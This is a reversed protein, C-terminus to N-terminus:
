LRKNKSKMYNKISLYLDEGRVKTSIASIQGGGMGGGNIFNFLRRQQTGNLIMEGSNVRALMNDGSTSGGGIIGGFAFKPLAALAIAAQQQAIFGAAIETGVFPIYAHAAFTSAAAAASWASTEAVAAAVNTASAAATAASLAIKDGIQKTTSASEIAAEATKANKLDDSAKTWRNVTDVINLIGDVSSQLVQWIALIKEWESAGSGESMVQNLNQFASGIDQVSNAVGKFNEWAGRLGLEKQLGKIDERVETLKLKDSLSTVKDLQNNIATVMQETDQVAMSKLNDLQQKANDLQEGLIDIDSKKYDFTTDRQAEVPLVQKISNKTTGMSTSLEFLTDIYDKNGNAMGSFTAVTKKVETINNNLGENYADQSIAGAEYEKKLRDQKDYYDKAVAKLDQLSKGDQIQAYQGAMKKTFDSNRVSAFKSTALESYIETVLDQRATAVSDAGPLHKEETRALKMLGESYRQEANQLQEAAPDSKRSTGGSRTAATVTYPTEKTVYKAAGQELGKLKKETDALIKANAVYEREDNALGFGPFFYQKGKIAPEHGGYKRLLASQKDQLELKKNTYFEIAAASQLLGIRENLLKNVAKEGTVKQGTLDGIRRELGFREKSNQKADNYQKKIGELEIIERTHMAKSAEAKYDKYANKIQEARQRLEVFKAILETVITILIMPGVTAWVAKLSAGLATAGTKIKAWTASWANGSQVAAAREDAVKAANKTKTLTVEADALQKKKANLQVEAALREDASLKDLNVEAESIQRKLRATTNELLRVKTHAVASNTVMAESLSKSFARWSNFLQSIKIGALLAVIDVVLSRFNSKVYDAFGTVAKKFGDFFNQVGTSNLAETLGSLAGTISDIFLKYTDSVPTSKLLEIKANQMKNVSTELHDTDVNPIMEDLAKGFNPLVKGSLLEGKQMMSDLEGVSVGAAKAMAQLAVPLKEGMQLRLEQAQVKGKGMMQSLALFVSNTDESNLAFAATARSVSEFLSKQVSLPMGALKASATFKAYAASLDNVNTGYKKSVSILYKQNDAFEATSGSVNKLATMAENTQRVIGIVQSSFGAFANKILDFAASFTLIKAQMSSFGSKVENAGKKFGDTVLNLAIAFSLRSM